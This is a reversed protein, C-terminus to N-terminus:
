PMPRVRACFIQAEAPTLTLALIFSRDSFSISFNRTSTDRMVTSPSRRRSTDMFMLRRISRAAIAAGAMALAQRHAALAGAGLARVALARALGGDLQLGRRTFTLPDVFL